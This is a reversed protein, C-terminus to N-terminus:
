PHRVLSEQSIEEFPQNASFYRLRFLAYSLRFNLCTIRMTAKCVILIGFVMLTAKQERLQEAIGLDSLDYSVLRCM